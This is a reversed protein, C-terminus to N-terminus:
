LVRRLTERQQETLSRPFAVQFKVILDGKQDPQKQNPMGEGRIVKEYGPSIVDTVPVKVWRDDLTLVEISTGCLAEKLGVRATYILNDGDRKFRDHPKEEIIFIIDAPVIGPREDGEEKFTLKTGAKWGKKVEVNLIKEVKMERGTADQLTKTIKLKKSAGKYLDELSVPLNRKVPPAKRPGSPQARGFSAFPNSEDDEDSEPGGFGGGGGGGGGGFQSFFPNRGGFFQAFIDEANSPNYRFSFGQGGGPFGGFGGPFGQGGPPFGEPGVGAKLGEEGFKDYIEKKKADSLVEYAEAVEKFKDEAQKKNDPNRDPHWKLALKKFAKKIEDEKATRPVGLIAYYDKGM